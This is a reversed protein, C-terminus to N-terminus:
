EKQSCRRKSYEYKKRESPEIDDLFPEYSRVVREYDKRQWAQTAVERAESLKWKRILQDSSRAQADRLRKFAFPSGSLAEKGYSCLLGALKRVGDAVSARTTAQFNCNDRSGFASAFDVPYYREEKGSKPDRRGVEFKLEYSSRGHYVNVFLEGRDEYRLLTPGAEVLRYGFDKELFFFSERASEEFRLDSRAVTDRKTM